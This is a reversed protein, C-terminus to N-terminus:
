FPLAMKRTALGDQHCYVTRGKCHSLEGGGHHLAVPISNQRQTSPRGPRTGHTWDIKTKTAPSGRATRPTDALEHALTDVTGGQFRAGRM